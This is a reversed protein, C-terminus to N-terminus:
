SDWYFNFSKKIKDKEEEEPPKPTPLCVKAHVSFSSSIFIGFSDQKYFFSSAIGCTADIIWEKRIVFGYLSFPSFLSVHIDVQKWPTVFQVSLIFFRTHGSAEVTSVPWHVLHCLFQLMKTKKITKHWTPDVRCWVLLQVLNYYPFTEFKSTLCKQCVLWKGNRKLVSVRDTKM